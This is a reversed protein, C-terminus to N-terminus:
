FKEGAEPLSSYSLVKASPPGPPMERKTLVVHGINHIILRGHGGPDSPVPGVLMVVDEQFASVSLGFPNAQGMPRFLQVGPELFQALAELLAERRCGYHIQLSRVGPTIDIVGPVNAESGSLAAAVTDIDEVFDDM